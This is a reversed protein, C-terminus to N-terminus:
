TKKRGGSFLSLKTRAVLSTCVNSDIFDKVEEKTAGNKIIDNVDKSRFSSNSKPPVYMKFGNSAFMDFSKRVDPNSTSDNDLVIVLDSFEKLILVLDKTIRARSMAMSNEVFMSDIPGEFLYVRKGRDVNYFNFLRVKAEDFVFTLYKSSRNTLSRGQMMYVSGDDKKFFPIILRPDFGELNSETNKEEISVIEKVAGSFDSIFWFRNSFDVLKREELYSKVYNIKQIETTVLGYKKGIKM